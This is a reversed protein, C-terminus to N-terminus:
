KAGRLKEYEAATALIREATPYELNDPDLAADATVLALLTAMESRKIIAKYRRRGVLMYEVTHLMTGYKELDKEYLEKCTLFQITATALREKPKRADPYVEALLKELKDRQEQGYPFAWKEYSDYEEQVQEKTKRLYFQREGLM